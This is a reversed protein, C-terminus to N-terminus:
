WGQPTGDWKRWVDACWKVRNDGFAFGVVQFTTFSMGGLGGRPGTTSPFSHLWVDATITAGAPAGLREIAKNTLHELQGDSMLASDDHYKIEVIAM